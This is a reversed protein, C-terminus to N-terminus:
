APHRAGKTVPVSFPRKFLQAEPLQQRYPSLLLWEQGRRPAGSAAFNSNPYYSRARLYADSFLARNTWEFDFM